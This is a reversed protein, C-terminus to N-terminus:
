SQLQLSQLRRGSYCFTSSSSMSMIAELHICKVLLSVAPCSDQVADDTEEHKEVAASRDPVLRKLETLLTVVYSRELDISIYRFGKTTKLRTSRQQLRIKGRVKRRTFQM